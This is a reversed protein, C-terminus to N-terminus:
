IESFKFQVNINVSSLETILYKYACPIELYGIDSKNKCKRCNAPTSSIMGEKTRKTIRQLPFLMSGCNKCVLTTTKDSCHFLRDQLLFSAGHSILSDREMEGFRVGGGRKRGKIPQQTLVDVPGTSRVQFKDFVMHRLRQYHVIGFFIDAVMERGDVGSYLRETGYYNYGGKELLQGFYDIATYKESFRFPTADHVLGHLAASKGAMTEIMMAITMRSPFGHPNFVIDPILGTETFPLDEAPYKQSCIGKQGARSAFKDGINAPRPIRLCISVCKPSGINFHGLYKVTDVIAEEKEENKVVKYISEDTDYYCYLISKYHIKMGPHPLGDNDLFNGLNQNHPDRAFYSSGKLEVVHTKYISGYAFGRDHAAKNIIMADEMDYGTYSLVAVIANTGMPYDDLEIKDYHIPRFLPTGPTQLRYLKSGNQLQWNHCPTGMTQKGMQCQYMNRPSQNYDPMPILLALNSLFDLKSLEMHSTYGEYIEDDDIAIDMYVQEFSGIYEIKGLSINKVPRMMRSPGVFLYLGPFQGKNKFPVLVIEMMNPLVNEVKLYRLNDIIKSSHTQSIYGLIKGELMVTYTKLDLESLHSSVPIMGLDTLIKPIEKVQSEKPLTSICCNVTLHNLLGCPAGDPTHVPCIFGWADPLLQRAETTRMTTFYSGRHISRFHSMYRMRNINEAMISLGTQQMLGMGSRSPANGTALFTEMARGIGGASRGSSEFITQTVLVHNECKKLMYRKVYSLWIELRERLFKQYLTGSTLVEQMMVSDINELKYKEQACQFLKKVMYIILNFKDEYKNLHVLIRENLIYDTIDFNSYWDPLEPFRARFIGGLYDKCQTHSHLGEDHVERLMTQIASIYYQDSEYGHILEEFIKKDTYDVLCKLLLCVPLYSLIKSQSFMFKATGNSLFHLVNNFSQEDSRVTRIMVGVDTFMKGRDKWTSRKMVIPYNRRTMLLMRLIKENGKCIFYGGWETEHEGRDILDEPNLGKLNCKSSKLMIPINGLNFDVTKCEYGDIICKVRATCKGAYTMRRQRCETPYINRNRVDIVDQPIEPKSINIEEIQLTIKEGSSTQFQVPDINEALSKLGHSLFSDFAEIHPAGLKLLYPNFCKKSERYIPKLNSLSPFDHM